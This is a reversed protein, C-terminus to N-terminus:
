LSHLVRSVDSPALHTKVIMIVVGRALHLLLNEDPLQFVGDSKPLRECYVRTFGFLVGFTNQLLVNGLVM